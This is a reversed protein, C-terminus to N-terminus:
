GEAVSRGACYIDKHRALGTGVGGGGGGGSGEERVGVTWERGDAAAVMGSMFM